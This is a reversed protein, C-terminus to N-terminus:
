KSSRNIICQDYSNSILNSKENKKMKKTIGTNIKIQAMLYFVANIPSVSAKLFLCQGMKPNNEM